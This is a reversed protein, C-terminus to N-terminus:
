IETIDYNWIKWAYCISLQVHYTYFVEKMSEMYVGASSCIGIFIMSQVTSVVLVIWKWKDNEIPPLDDLIVFEELEDNELNESDIKKM